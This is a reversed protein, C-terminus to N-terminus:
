SPRASVSRESINNAALDSGHRGFWLAYGLAMWAVGLPLALLVREDQENFGLMVAAGAVLLAGVPRPVLGARLVAFGVGVLGAIVAVIGPVVFAPMLPFGGEYFAAQISAGGVLM